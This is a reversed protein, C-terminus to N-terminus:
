EASEGFWRELVMSAVSDGWVNVTTRVMDLLRDVALIIGIGEIPLGVTEFVIVMTVLGASPVGAAGIAALTATIFILLQSSISLDMGFAQAVFIAAVAEYLATGDMNVTAGLPLVFGAVRPSVGARDEACEMTKPLTASSSATSFATVLAPAMAVFAQWPHRHGAVFLLLSLTIVAHTLLAGIVTLMYLPLRALEEPPIESVAAYLLAAVGLPTLLLIWDTVRLVVKETAVFFRRFDSADDALLATAVGVLIAFFIVGLLGSSSSFAAFVNEPVISLVVDAISGPEIDPHAAASLDIGDGPRIVNVFLMGLAVAAGTSVLYFSITALSFRRLSKTDIGSIGVIVTSVVLPVIVMKLLRVFLTGVFDAAASLGPVVLVERQALMGFTLALVIAVAIWLLERRTGTAGAPESTPDSM